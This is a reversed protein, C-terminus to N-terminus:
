GGFGMLWSLIPYAIMREEGGRGLVLNFPAAVGFFSSRFGLVIPLLAFVEVAM